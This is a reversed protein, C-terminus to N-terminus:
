SYEGVVNVVIRVKATNFNYGSFTGRCEATIGRGTFVTRVRNKVHTASDSFVTTLM